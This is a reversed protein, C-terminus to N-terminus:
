YKTHKKYSSTLVSGSASAVQIFAGINPLVWSAQFHAQFGPEGDNNAWTHGAAARDKVSPEGARNIAEGAPRFSAGLLFHRSQHRFYFWSWFFTL